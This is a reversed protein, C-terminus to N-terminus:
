TGISGQTLVSDADSSWCALPLAHSGRGFPPSCSRNSRALYPVRQDARIRVEYDASRVQTDDAIMQAITALTVPEGKVLLEEDATITVVLRRPTGSQGDATTAQPLEVAEATDYQVFHTAVLFFIVLLFVVDILPTINFRM